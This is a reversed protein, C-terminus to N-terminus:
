IRTTLLLIACKRVVEEPLNHHKAIYAATYKTPEGQHQSLFQLANRLTSKGLPVKDPEKHGFLFPGPQSKDQPLPRSPDPKPAQEIPAQFILLVGDCRFPKLVM